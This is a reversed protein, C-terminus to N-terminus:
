CPTVTCLIKKYGRIRLDLLKLQECLVIGQSNGWAKVQALM